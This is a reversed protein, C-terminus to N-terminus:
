PLEKIIQALKENHNGTKHYHMKSVSQPCDYDPFKVLLRDEGVYIVYGVTDDYDDVVEDGIEIIEKQRIYSEYKEKAEQCSLNSMIENLITDGFCKSREPINMDIIKMVFQWADDQGKIFNTMEEEEEDKPKSIYEQNWCAACLNFKDCGTKGYALNIHDFDEYNNPCGYVGGNFITNVEHPHHTKMYEILTM